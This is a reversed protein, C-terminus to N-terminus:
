SAAVSGIGAAAAAIAAFAMSAVLFRGARNLKDLATALQALGGFDVAAQETAPNALKDSTKKAADKAADRIKSVADGQDNFAFIVALIFSIGGAILSFKVVTNVVATTAIMAIGEDKTRNSLDVL